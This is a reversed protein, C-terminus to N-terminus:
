TNDHYKYMNEDKFKDPHDEDYVQEDLKAYNRRMYDVDAFKSDGVIQEVM